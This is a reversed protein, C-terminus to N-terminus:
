KVVSSASPLCPISKTHALCHALGWLFVLRLALVTLGCRPTSMQMATTSVWFLRMLPWFGADYSVAHAMANFVGVHCEVVSNEKPERPASHHLAITTEDAFKHFPGQSLESARDSKVHVKLACIVVSKVYRCCCYEKLVTPFKPKHQFGIVKCADRYDDVFMYGGVFGHVVSSCPFGVAGDVHVLQGLETATNSETDFHPHCHLNCCVCTDCGWGPGLSRDLTFKGTGAFDHVHSKLRSMSDYCPHGLCCHWVDLLAASTSKSSYAPPVVAPAVLASLPGDVVAM